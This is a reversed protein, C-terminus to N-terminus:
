QYTDQDLVNLYQSSETIIGNNSKTTDAISYIITSTKVENITDIIERNKKWHLFIAKESANNDMPVYGATMFVRLYRERNLMYKLAECLKGSGPVEQEHRKLYV